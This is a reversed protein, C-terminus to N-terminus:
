SNSRGNIALYAKIRYADTIGGMESHARQSHIHIGLEDDVIPLMTACSNLLSQFLSRLQAILGDSDHEEMVAPKLAALLHEGIEVPM